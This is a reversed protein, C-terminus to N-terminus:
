IWTLLSSIKPGITDAKLWHTFPIVFPPYIIKFEPQCGALVEQLRNLNFTQAASHDSTKPAKIWDRATGGRNIWAACKKQCNFKRFAHRWLAAPECRKRQFSFPLAAKCGQDRWLISLLVEESNLIWNNMFWMSMSLPSSPEQWAAKLNMNEQNETSFM